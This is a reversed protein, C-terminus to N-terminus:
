EGLIDAFARRYLDAVTVFLAALIPGAILGIPGFYTLGGLTSLLILLDPMKTDKGVLRPRLVNDVTGVVGACWATLGLAAGTNGYIFLYIAAPIWVLAVGVGPLFSLVAMITGWFVPGDIGVVWFALGALLGQVAGIVVSGKLMARTVSLGKDFLLEQDAHALPVSRLILEIVARGYMLFFFMAYLMVFLDLVFRATSQTASTAVRVLISGVRGTLEGAKEVIQSRYPIIQDRLPLWDPLREEWNERDALQKQVLPVVVETVQRAQNVLVGVFLTLPVVVIAVTLIVTLLSAAVDSRWLLRQLRRYIPTMLGSFLAALFLPAHFDAIMRLFWVTIAVMLVAVFVREVRSRGRGESMAAKYGAGGPFDM